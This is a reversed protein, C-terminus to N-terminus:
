AKKGIRIDDMDCDFMITVGIKTGYDGYNLTNRIENIPSRQLRDM